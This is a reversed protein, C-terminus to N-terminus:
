GLAFFLLGAMAGSTTGIVPAAAVMEDLPLDFLRTVIMTLVGFVLVAAVVAQVTFPLSQVVSLHQAAFLFAATAVMLLVTLTANKWTNKSSNPQLVDAMHKTVFALTFGGGVISVLVALGDNMSM